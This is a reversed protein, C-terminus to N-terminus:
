KKVWELKYGLTEGLIEVDTIKPRYFGNRWREISRAPFGSRKALQEDILGQDEQFQFLARLAPSKTGEDPSKKRSMIDEAQDPNELAFQIGKKFGTNFTRQNHSTM